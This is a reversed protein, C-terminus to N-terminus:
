GRCCCGVAVVGVRNVLPLPFVCDGCCCSTGFEVVNFVAGLHLVFGIAVVVEVLVLCFIGLLVLTTAGLIPPTACSPVGQVPPDLKTGSAM